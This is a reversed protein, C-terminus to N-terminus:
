PAGAAGNDAVLLSCMGDPLRESHPHFRTLWVERGSRSTKKNQPEMLSALVMYQTLTHRVMVAPGAYAMSSQALHWPEPLRRSAAPKVVIARSM